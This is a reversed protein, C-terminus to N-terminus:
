QRLATMPNVKTARRAPLLCAPLAILVLLLPIGAFTTLDRASVEFLFGAVLKTAFAAAVLGLSVGGAVLVLGERLVQGLVQAQQAGIAMRLTKLIPM